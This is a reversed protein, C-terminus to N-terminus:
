HIPFMVISGLNRFEIHVGFVQRTFLLLATTCEEGVSLIMNM